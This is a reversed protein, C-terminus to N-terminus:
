AAVIIPHKVGADAFIKIITLSLWYSDAIMQYKM